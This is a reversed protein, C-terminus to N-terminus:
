KEAKEKLAKNMAEFKPKFETNLKKKLFPVLIGKFIESHELTTTGDGNDTLIFRHTGDFIRPLILRGKWQFAKNKDYILVKPKFTMDEFEVKIRKGVKVEGTLTLIFPNWSRYSDFRTLVAWVKEPAANITISTYIEAM